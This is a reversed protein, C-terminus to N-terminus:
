AIRGNERLWREGPLEGTPSKARAAAQEAADRANNAALLPADQEAKLATIWALREAFRVSFADITERIAAQIAEDRKVEVILSPLQRSFSLFTWRPRGTVFLSFHVQGRYEPPVENKLLYKLHVPPTPSKVELGNDDGLLADPSCGFRGCDSLCFGVQRAEVGHTFSFWPLAIKEVFQGQEMAYTGGFDSSWGLLKECIKKYLYTDVGEGTRAKWLPTILADVESATIVGLRAAYWEPSGQACTLTKM